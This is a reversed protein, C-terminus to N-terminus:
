KTAKAADEAKAAERSGDGGTPEPAVGAAVAGGEARPKPDTTNGPATGGIASGAEAPSHTMSGEKGDAPTSAPASTASAPSSSGTATAPATPTRAQDCGAHLLAGAALTIALMTRM